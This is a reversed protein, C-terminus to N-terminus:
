RRLQTLRRLFPQSCLLFTYTDAPKTCLILPQHETARLKRPERQTHLRWLLQQRTPTHCHYAHQETAHLRLQPQRWVTQHYPEALRWRFQQQSGFTGGNQEQMRGSYNRNGSMGTGNGFSRSSHDNFQSKNLNGFTRNRNNDFGNRYDGRRFGDRMGIAPGRDPRGWDRRGRYWSHGGNMEWSHGGRYEVYFTPRGFYFYDRHPYRAYIGFHWFGGSWYIPRYFYTADCFARYQWDFLIYSLDLNRYRWYTGYLDDVTNVRLLYDLNIEYAAEYQDETLNLEYAMKDTLFLAENRAQEYSMASASVTITFLTVLAFVFKKM